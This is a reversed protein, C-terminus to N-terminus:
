GWIFFFPEIALGRLTGIRVQQKDLCVVVRVSRIMEAVFQHFGPLKEFLRDLEIRFEGSSKCPERHYLAPHIVIVVRCRATSFLGAAVSVLRQAQLWIEGLAM